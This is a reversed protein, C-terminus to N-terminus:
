VERHDTPISPRLADDRLDTNKRMSVTRRRESKPISPLSGNFSNKNGISSSSTSM